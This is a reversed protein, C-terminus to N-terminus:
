LVRSQKSSAGFLADSNRDPEKAPSLTLRAVLDFVVRVHQNLLGSTPCLAWHLGRDSEAQM